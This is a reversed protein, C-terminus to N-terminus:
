AAYKTKRPFSINFRTGGDLSIILTGDLQQTLISVIEMGMTTAVSIDFDAPLGVGDDQISLLYECGKIVFDIRITGRGQKGIFAHKLANSILENIILGCPVASEIDLSVDAVHIDLNVAVGPTEYFHCLSSALTRIYDDFDIELLDDSQYLNEHILSMSKIRLQSEGLLTAFDENGNTEAQINLLSSIVQMNNKVRHHVEKLLLEKERLSTALERQVIKNESVEHELASTREAVLSELNRRYNELEEETRKRGTVDRAISVFAIAQDAADRVAAITVETTTDVQGKCSKVEGHWRGQERLGQLAKDADTADAFLLDLISHGVVDKPVAGLILEIANNAYMINKSADAILVCDTAEELSEIYLQLRDNYRKEADRRLRRANAIQLQYLGVLGILFYGLYAWWTRWLPPNVVIAIAAGVENWVGDNNSGKVKFSYEGADLNTYTVQRAGNSDVWDRDFGQLMYRFQNKDSATFDMASFEFGIVFDNYALSLDQLRSVPQAFQQPQNFKSFGTIRIPPVYSNGEIRDPDFANFGNSGGFLFSGDAMKLYAGSNFDDSQLGHSADYRIFEGSAVDLVSLGKGGSVWIQEQADVLMGYVADSALGDAKTFRTFSHTELDFRNIGSDRTGVWMVGNHALLSIVNNSSLSSVDDARHVISETAGTAPDLVVIGGGDTAIWFKGDGAEAIDLTRLDAFSRELGAEFDGTIRTFAGPFRKFKGDGLYLNVGGGYTTLWLRDDRDVYIRSIANSSISDPNNPDHRYSEVVKDGDILGVGGSMTGVWLVGQYVALSMVLSKMIGENTVSMNVFGPISKDWKSLGEFTGVWVDGEVSEAFSTISNSTLFINQVANQKFHPFTETRANWKSVGNFTGVWIVGGADQFLEFVTNDSISHVDTPDVTYREFSALDPGWLQLGGDTGIWIDGDVDKLLSRVRSSATNTMREAAGLAVDFISVGGNFTALWLKGPEAEIISRIYNDSISTPDNASSAYHTFSLASEDFLNLGGKETGIWIRKRSDEFVVRVSGRSLSEPDRPDHKFHALSRDPQMIVLGTGTGIWIRGSSDEFLSHVIDRQDSAAGDATADLSIFEFNDRADNYRNLGSDTGVWLDGRSDVLLDWISDHSLSGPDDDLHYFTKFSYGDYRNLGEQTGIWIFGEADQTISSVAAQSLGSETGLRDFILNRYDALRAQSAVSPLAWCALLCLCLLLRRLDGLRSTPSEHSVQGALRRFRFQRCSIAGAALTECTVLRRGTM